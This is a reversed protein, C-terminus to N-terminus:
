RSAIKSSITKSIFTGGPDHGHHQDQRERPQGHSVQELLAEFSRVFVGVFSPVFIRSGASAAPKHARALEIRDGPM